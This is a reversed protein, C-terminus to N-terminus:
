DALQASLAHKGVGAACKLGTTLRPCSTAGAPCVTSALTADANGNFCLDAFVPFCTFVPAAQMVVKTAKCSVELSLLLSAMVWLFQQYVHPGLLSLHANPELALPGLLIVSTQLLLFLDLPKIVALKSVFPRLNFCTLIVELQGPLLHHLLPLFRWLVHPVLRSLYFVCEQQLERATAFCVVTVNM